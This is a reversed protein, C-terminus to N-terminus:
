KKTASRSYNIEAIYALLDSDPRFLEAGLWCAGFRVHMRKEDAMTGPVTALVEDAGLATMREKLNTTFGIKINVGLRAFYVLGQRRMKQQPFARSRQARKPVSKPKTPHRSIAADIFDRVEYYVKRAHHSCIPQDLRTEIARNCGPFCCYKTGKLHDTYTRMTTRDKTLDAV